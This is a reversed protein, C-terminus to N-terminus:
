EGITAPFVDGALIERVTGDKMEILLGGGPNLGQFRGSIEENATRAVIAQGLGAARALWADRIPPFGSQRWTQLWGDMHRALAAFLDPPAIQPFGEAAISTAAYDTDGPFHAVNVGIGIVLWDLEGQANSASELLIGSIKKGEYLVDNPWKCKLKHTVGTVDEIAEAVALAAAFSLLAAEGASGAPRILLSAYLNGAESVWQRGRRGRGASQSRAIFWTPGPMYDDGQCAACRKAEENTSDIDDHVAADYGAPLHYNSRSTM